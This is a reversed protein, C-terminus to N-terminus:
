NEKPYRAHFAGCNIMALKGREDAQDYLALLQVRRPDVTIGASVIPAQTDFNRMADQKTRRAQDEVQSALRAEHRRELETLDRKM